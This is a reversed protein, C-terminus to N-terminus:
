SAIFYFYDPIANFHTIITITCINYYHAVFQHLCDLFLHLSGVRLGLEFGFVAILIERFFLVTSYLCNECTGLHIPQDVSEFFLYLCGDVEICLQELGFVRLLAKLM